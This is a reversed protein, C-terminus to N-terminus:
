GRPNIKQVRRRVEATLQLVDLTGQANLNYALLPQHQIHAKRYDEFERLSGCWFDALTLGAEHLRPHKVAETAISAHYARTAHSLPHVRVAVGGLVQVPPLAFAMETDQVFTLLRRVGGFSFPELEFPLLVHRCAAIACRTLLGLHPPTDIIIYEFPADSQALASLAQAFRQAVTAISIDRPIDDLAPSAPIISIHAHLTRRVLPMLPNGDVLAAYLSQVARQDQVSALWSTLNGQADADILLVRMNEHALAGAINGVVTTKGIGGKNNAVCLIPIPDGVLPAPMIVTREVGRVLPRPVTDAWPDLDALATLAPTAIKSPVSARQEDEHMAQIWRLLEKEDYLYIRMHRQTRVISRAEAAFGNLCIYRGLSVNAKQMAKIFATMLKMGVRHTQFQKVQVVEQLVPARVDRARLEIDVGEDMPGDALAVTFRGEREFLYLIFAQFADPTLQRLRELDPQAFLEGLWETHTSDSQMMTDHMGGNRSYCFVSEKM